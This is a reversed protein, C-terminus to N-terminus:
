RGVIRYRVKHVGSFDLVRVVGPGLDFDRGPTYPGRDAVRAVARRGEYEFEVLTGFPLTKHACIMSYPGIREGSAGRGTFDRAYHSAVATKWEGTGTISQPPTARAKVRAAAAARAAAVRAAYEKLAAQSRALERKAREVEEALADLNRAQEAQLTLLEECSREAAARAAKLAALDDASRRAIRQLLDLRSALDQISEAGLLLALTGDSGARYMARVRATLRARCAAEEALAEDLRATADALRDDIRDAQAQAATLRAVAADLAARDAAVEAAATVALAASPGIHLTAAVLVVL